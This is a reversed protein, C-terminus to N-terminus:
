DEPYDPESADALSEAIKEQIDMGHKSEFEDPDTLEGCKQCKLEGGVIEWSAGSGPYDYGGPEPGDIMEIEAENQEGCESCDYKQTVIM